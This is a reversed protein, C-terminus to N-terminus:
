DIERKLEFGQALLTPGVQPYYLRTYTSAVSKIYSTQYNMGHKQRFQQLDKEYQEVGKKVRAPDYSNEMAFGDVPIRPKLPANKAEPTPVGITTGVVPFTGEPLQLLKVLSDPSRRIGGIATTGYGLSEAVTQLAHLMIGADVAGVLLGEATKGIVQTEGALECAQKTRNFDIVITIFVDATRVQEQGGALDAIQSITERDRTHVLSIQQGNSSTPARQATRLITQLDEEQVKEGTFQRISKRNQLQHIVENM